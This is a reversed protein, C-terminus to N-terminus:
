AVSRDVTLVGCTDVYPLSVLFRGFIPGRVLSLPLLGVITGACRAEICYPRHGLGDALALLWRPDMGTQYHPLSRCFELWENQRDIIDSGSIIDVTILCPQVGRIVNSQSSM